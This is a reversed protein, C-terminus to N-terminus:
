LQEPNRKATPSRSTCTYDQSTRMLMVLVGGPWSRPTETCRSRTLTATTTVTAHGEEEAPKEVM